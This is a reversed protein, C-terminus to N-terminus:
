SVEVVLPRHDSAASGPVEVGVIGLGRVAVHDIRHWPDDVPSSNPGGAVTYGAAELVPDVVDPHLNLDGMVIAPLDEGLLGALVALQAAADDDHNQLHTVAVRAHLWDCHVTSVLAVRREPKVGPPLVVISTDAITGRVALANGYRGGLFPRALAFEHHDAGLARAALAAQDVFWSRCVRVDVEQLGAVDADLLRVGERLRWPLSPWRAGVRGHRVNFTAL